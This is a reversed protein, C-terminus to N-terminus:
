GHKGMAARVPDPEGAPVDDWSTAARPCPTPIQAVDQMLERVSDARVNDPLSLEISDVVGGLRKALLPKLDRFRAAVCFLDLTEDSIEAPMQQWRGSLTM